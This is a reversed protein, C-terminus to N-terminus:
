KRKQTSSKKGSKTRRKMDQTKSKSKSRSKSRTKKTGKKSSASRKKRKTTKEEEEEDDDDEEKKTREARYNKKYYGLTEFEKLQKKFRKKDYEAKKEYKRQSVGDESTWEKAAMKLLKAVPAKENNKEKRLDPIRDRVYLTFANLPRKPMDFVVNKFEDMKKQYREKERAAKEEYKKKKDKSLEDYYPRWYQVAKEGKPIKMGKKEKLFQGYANAPRKPLIKKIKKNYIMKKYKYALRLTHAKKLYSEKEDESLKEWLEKGEKLSHLEKKKAKEQLFVRFAGAPRKPKMGHVLEYINQLKEREENITNAYEEYKKKETPKVSKWADAIDALKPFPKQKERALDLTNQVFLTLPTVKRTKKAKEFWSDNEKKKEIYEAKDELSMRRWDDSAKKKVEKPDENKDFGERLRENLFLRYATPPRHVIDNYDMFLYHRVTELDKKYRLKDDEFKDNYKSKDKDGLKKWKSACEASFTKLEIKEGKNKKKFKEVEEICFYTYPNRPRKLTINELIEDIKDDELIKSKQSRKPSKSKSKSNSKKM